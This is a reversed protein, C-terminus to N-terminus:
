LRTARSIRFTAAIAVIGALALFVSAPEPAQTLSVTEVGSFNGSADQLVVDAFYTTAPIANLGLTARFLDVVPTTAGTPVPFDVDGLLPTITVVLPDFGSFDLFLASATLDVGTDNTIAGSFLTSSGPVVARNADMISLTMAHASLSSTALALSLVLVGCGLRKRTGQLLSLGRCPDLM